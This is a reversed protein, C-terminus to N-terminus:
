NNLLLDVLSVILFTEPDYVVGYGQYYGVNCGRPVDTLRRVLTDPAATIYQRYRDPIMEGQSFKPRKHRDVRPLIRQYHSQLVHKNHSSLAYAANSHPNARELAMPQHAGKDKFKNKDQQKIKDKQKDKQKDKGKQGHEDQGYQPNHQPNGKEAYKGQHQEPQPAAWAPAKSLMLTAAISSIILLSKKM